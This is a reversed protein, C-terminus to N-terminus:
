FNLGNLIHIIVMNKKNWSTVLAVWWPRSAILSVPVVACVSRLRCLVPTWVAERYLPLSRRTNITTTLPFVCGLYVQKHGSTNSMLDSCLNLGGKGRNKKRLSHDAIKRLIMSVSSVGAWGPPPSRHQLKSSLRECICLGSIVAPAPLPPLVLITFVAGERPFPFNSETKIKKWFLQTLFFNQEM